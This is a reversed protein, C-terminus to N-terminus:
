RIYGVLFIGMVALFCALFLGALVSGARREGLYLLGAGPLFVNLATAMRLNKPSPLPPPSATAFPPAIGTLTGSRVSLSPCSVKRSPLVPVTCLSSSTSTVIKAGDEHTSCITLGLDKCASALETEPIPGMGSVQVARFGIAAVKKLSVHIDAPTKLFDRVTYLQAAIQSAKM